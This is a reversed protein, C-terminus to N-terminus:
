NRLTSEPYSSSIPAVDIPEKAENEKRQRARMAIYRPGYITAAAITLGIWASAEESIFSKEYLAEVREIAQAFNNAEDHNLLLEEADLIKALMFHSQILINTLHSTAEKKAQKGRRKRKPQSYDGSASDGPKSADSDSGFDAPNFVYEPKGSDPIAQTDGGVQGGDVNETVGSGESSVEGVERVPKKGM